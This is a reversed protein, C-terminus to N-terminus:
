KENDTTSKKKRESKWRSKYSTLTNRSLGIKRECWVLAANNATARNPGKRFDEIWGRLDSDDAGRSAILYSTSFTQRLAEPTVADNSGVFARIKRLETSAVNLTYAVQSMTHNCGEALTVKDHQSFTLGQPKRMAKTPDSAIVTGPSEVLPPTLEPVVQQTIADKFKPPPMMERKQAGIADVFSPSVSTAQRMEGVQHMVRLELAQHEAPPNQLLTTTTNIAERWWQLTKSDPYDAACKHLIELQKRASTEQEWQRRYYHSGHGSIVDSFVKAMQTSQPEATGNNVNALTARAEDITKQSEEMQVTFADVPPIRTHGREEYIKTYPWRDLISKCARAVGALKPESLCYDLQYKVPINNRMTAIRLAPMAWSLACCLLSPLEDRIWPAVGEYWVDLVFSECKSQGQESWVDCYIKYVAATWKEGLETLTNSLSLPPLDDAPPVSAADLFQPQFLAVTAPQSEKFAVLPQVMGFHIDRRIQSTFLNLKVRVHEHALMAWYYKRMYHM